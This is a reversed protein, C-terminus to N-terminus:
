IDRCEGFGARERQAKSQVLAVLVDLGRRLM